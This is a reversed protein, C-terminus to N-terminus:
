RKSWNVKKAIHNRDNAYDPKAQHLNNRKTEEGSREKIRPSVNSKCKLPYLLFTFSHPPFPTSPKQHDPSQLELNQSKPKSAYHKPTPFRLNPDPFTGIDPASLSGCSVTGITLNQSICQLVTVLSVHMCIWFSIKLIRIDASRFVSLCSIM